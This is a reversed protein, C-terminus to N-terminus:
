SGLIARIRATVDQPVGTGQIERLLGRESYYRILPATNEHYVGLRNRMSDENDDARQYLEGSCIDCVGEKVPPKFELHYMGGCGRCTRRGSLRNVLMSEPVIISLVHDIAVGLENLGDAQAVTRPFGDFIVGDQADAHRLRKEILELIIEDSVLGGADMVAAVRKGFETGSARAARLMDGTSVQPIGLSQTLAQAQTGKGAGPAGLLILYM